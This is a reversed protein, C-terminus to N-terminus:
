KKTHDPDYYECHAPCEKCNGPCIDMDRFDKELIKQITELAKLRQEVTTKREDIGDLLRSCEELSKIVDKM